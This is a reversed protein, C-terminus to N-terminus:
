KGQGGIKKIWFIIQGVGDGWFILQLRFNSKVRCLLIYDLNSNLNYYPKKNMTSWLAQRFNQSGSLQQFHDDFIKSSQIMLFKTFSYSRLDLFSSNCLVVLFMLIISISSKVFGLKSSFVIVSSFSVCM